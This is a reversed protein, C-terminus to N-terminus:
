SESSRKKQLNITVTNSINRDPSLKKTAPNIKKNVDNKM